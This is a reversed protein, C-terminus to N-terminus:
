RDLIISREPRYYPDADARGPGQVSFRPHDQFRRVQPKSVKGEPIENRLGCSKRGGQIVIGVTSCVPLPPLTGALSCPYQNAQGQPRSDSAAQHYISLDEVPGGIGGPFEAM